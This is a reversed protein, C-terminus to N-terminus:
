WRVRVLRVVREVVDEILGGTDVVAVRAPDALALEEYFGAVM